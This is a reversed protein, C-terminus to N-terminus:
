AGVAKEGARDFDPSEIADVAPKLSKAVVFCMLTGM